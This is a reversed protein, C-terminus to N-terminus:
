SHDSRCSPETIFFAGVAFAWYARGSWGKWLRKGGLKQTTRFAAAPKWMKELFVAQRERLFRVLFSVYWIHARSSPYWPLLCVFSFSTSAPLLCFSPNCGPVCRLSPTLVGWVSPTRMGTGLRAWRRGRSNRSDSGPRCLPWSPCGFRWLGVVYRSPPSRQHSGRPTPCSLPLISCNQQAATPRRM